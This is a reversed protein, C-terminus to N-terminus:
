PSATGRPRRRGRSSVPVSRVRPLPFRDPDVDFRARATLTSLTLDYSDEVLERLVADDITGDLRVSVWHRKNMHYGPTIAPSERVLAAGREPAVKVTLLGTDDGLSILCFMKGGDHRGRAGSAARVGVKYVNVDDGFPNTLVSGPLDLPAALFRDRQSPSSSAM